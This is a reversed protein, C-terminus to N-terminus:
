LEREKKAETLKKGINEDFGTSFQIDPAGNKRKTDNENDSEM